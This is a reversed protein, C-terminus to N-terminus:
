GFHPIAGFSGSLYKTYLNTDRRLGAFDALATVNSQGSYDKNVLWVEEKVLDSILSANHCSMILQAGKPNEENSQFWRIIESMLNPHLDADLEDMVAVSGVKLALMIDIFNLYFSVTGQSEQTIKKGSRLGTHYFIPEPKGDVDIMEVKEIGLDIIRLKKNLENLIESDNKIFNNVSDTNKRYKNIHINSLFSIHVINKLYLSPSHDFQVLSSVLSVNKRVSRRPDNELLKFDDNANIIYHDGDLLRDFLTRFSNKNKSVQLREWKVANSNLHKGIIIEYRYIFPDVNDAFQGVTFEMALKTDSEHCEECDFPDIEIRDDSKYNDFSASFFNRMFAIARLVSTKGSANAGFFTVVKPVRGTGPLPAAFREDKPTTGPVRFDLVQRHRISYFNEIELKVLV